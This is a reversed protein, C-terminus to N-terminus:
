TTIYSTAVGRMTPGRRESGNGADLMMQRRRGRTKKGDMKGKVVMRLLPDRRLMNGIWKRQRKRVTYILTREEGIVALVEEENPNM